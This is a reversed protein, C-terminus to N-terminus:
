AESLPKVLWVDTYGVTCFGALSANLYLEQLLAPGYEEVSLVKSKQGTSLSALPIFTGDDAKVGIAVVNGLASFNAGAVALLVRVRDARADLIRLATTGNTSTYKTYWNMSRTLRIDEKCM